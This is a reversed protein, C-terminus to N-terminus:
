NELDEAQPAEYWAMRFWELVTSGRVRQVRKSLKGERHSRYVFYLELPLDQSLPPVQSTSRPEMSPPVSGRGMEESPEFEPLPGNVGERLLRQLRHLAFFREDEGIFREVFRGKAGLMERQWPDRGHEIRSM